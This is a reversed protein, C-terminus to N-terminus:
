LDSISSLFISEPMGNFLFLNNDTDDPLSPKKLGLTPSAALGEDEIEDMPPIRERKEAAQIFVMNSPVPDLLLLLHSAPSNATLPSSEDARLVPLWSRFLSPSADYQDNSNNNVFTTDPIDDADAGAGFTEYLTSTIPDFRSGGDDATSSFSRIPLFGKLWDWEFMSNQISNNNPVAVAMEEEAENNNRAKDRICSNFM